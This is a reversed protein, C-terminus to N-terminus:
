SAATPSQYHPAPHLSYFPPPWPPLCPPIILFFTLRRSALETPRPIARGFFFCSVWGWIGVRKSDVYDKESWRRAAEVVDESELKGLKGRVPVKFGRGKFGTGRPDVKVVIFGLSTVLYHHFDRSWQTSVM